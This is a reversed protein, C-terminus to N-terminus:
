ATQSRGGVGGKSGPSAPHSLRDLGEPGAMTLRAALSAGAHAGQEWLPADGTRVQDWLCGDPIAFRHGRNARMAAKKEEPLPTTYRAQLDPIAQEVKVSREYDWQDSLRKLFLLTLIYTKYGQGATNGRLINAARLLDAELPQQTVKPMRPSHGTPPPTSRGRLRFARRASSQPRPTATLLPPDGAREPEGRALTGAGRTRGVQLVPGSLMESGDRSWRGALADKASTRSLGSLGDLPGLGQLTWAMVQQTLPLATSHAM